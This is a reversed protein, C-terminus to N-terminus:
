GRIVLNPPLKTQPAPFRIIRDFEGFERMSRVGRADKGNWHVLSNEAVRNGDIVIGVAGKGDCCNLKFVLDGIQHGSDLPVALGAKELNLATRAPTTGILHQFQEGYVSHLVQRAWKLSHAPLVVFHPSSLAEKARVSLPENM